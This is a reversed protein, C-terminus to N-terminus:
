GPLRLGRTEVPDKDNVSVGSLALHREIADEEQVLDHWYSLDVLFSDVEAVVQVDDEFQHLPDPRPEHEVAVNM